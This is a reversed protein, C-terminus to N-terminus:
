RTQSVATSQRQAVYPTAPRQRRRLPNLYRILGDLGFWRGSATTALALLALMEVINKNIILFHGDERPNEPLWPFSPRALYFLLLFLAGSCCWLRTFVGLLLGLGTIALGWSVIRDTWRIKWDPPPAPMAPQARQEKRLV